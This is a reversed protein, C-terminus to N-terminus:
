KEEQEKEAMQRLIMEIDEFKAFQLNEDKLYVTWMAYIPHVLEGVTEIFEAPINEYEEFYEVVCSYFAIRNCLDWVIVPNNHRIVENRYDEFEHIVKRRVDRLEM